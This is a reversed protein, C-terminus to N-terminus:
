DVLFRLDGGGGLSFLERILVGLAFYASYHRIFSEVTRFTFYKIIYHFASVPVHLM